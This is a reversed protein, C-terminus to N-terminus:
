VLAYFCDVIRCCPLNTKKTSDLLLCFLILGVFLSCIHFTRRIVLQNHPEIAVARSATTPGATEFGVRNIYKKEFIEWFIIVIVFKKKKQFKIEKMSEGSLAAAFDEAYQVIAFFGSFEMSLGAFRVVVVVFMKVLNCFYVFITSRNRSVCSRHARGVGAFNLRRRQM